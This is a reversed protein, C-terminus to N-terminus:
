DTEGFPLRITIGFIHSSTKRKRTESAQDDFGAITSISSIFRYGAALRVRESLRVGLGAGFQFDFVLRNTLTLVRDGPGRTETLRSAGLGGMLYPQIPGETAPNHVLSVGTGISALRGNRSGGLTTFGRSRAVDALTNDTRQRTLDAEIRLGDIPQFGIMEVGGTSRINPIGNLTLLRASGTSGPRSIAQALSLDLRERSSDAEAPGVFAAALTIVATLLTRM